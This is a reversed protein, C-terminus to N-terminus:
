QELRIGVKFDEAFAAIAFVSDLLDHFELGVEDEEVHLHGLEIPETDEFGDRLGMQRRDNEYGGIVLIRHFGEVRMGDIVQELWELLLPEHIRHQPDLALHLSSRAASIATSFVILFQQREQPVDIGIAVPQDNATAALDDEEAGGFDFPNFGRGIVDLKVRLLADEGDAFFDTREFFRKGAPFNMRM